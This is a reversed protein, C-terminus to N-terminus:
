NHRIIILGDGGKNSTPTNFSGGSGGGPFVGADGPIGPTTKQNASGGLPSEGGSPVFQPSSTGSLGPCGPLNIDGGTGAAGGSSISAGPVTITIIGAGSFSSSTGPNGSTNTTLVAAGGAGVVCTYTQGPVINLLKISKGGSSASANTIAASSTGASAGGPIVTVEAITCDSPAVWTGSVTIYDVKCLGPNVLQYSASDISGLVKRIVPAPSLALFASDKTVQGTGGLNIPLPLSSPTLALTDLYAQHALGADVAAQTASTAAAQSAESGVLARIVVEDGLKVGPITVTSNSTETYDTTLVQDVGNVLVLLSETGVQYAFTTLTFIGSAAIIADVNFVQHKYNNDANAVNTSTGAPNWISATM